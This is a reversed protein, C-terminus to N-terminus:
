GCGTKMRSWCLNTTPSIFSAGSRRKPMPLMVHYGREADLLLKAGLRAALGRSWPGAALVVSDVPVSGGTTRVAAVKNDTIEFDRAEERVVAGGNAVLSEVFVRVLRGPNTVNASDTAYIAHQFMPRLGPELQRVEDGNLVDFSFGQETMLDREYRSGAFSADSKYVKLAGHHQVLSEAGAHKLLVAYAPLVGHILAAIAKGHAAVREPATNRLLTLLFPALRPLYRWRINLPGAPDMLMAPIQRAIGPTATPLVASVSISCANGYSTRTGPEAPDILTVTHGDRQLFLACSAGVIGAGIVAIDAM